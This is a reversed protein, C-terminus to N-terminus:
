FIINLIICVNEKSDLCLFMLFLENQHPFVVNTLSKKDRTKIATCPIHVRAMILYIITMFIIDIISYLFISFLILLLNPKNSLMKGKVYEYLM